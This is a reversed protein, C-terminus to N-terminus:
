SRPPSDARGSTSRERERDESLGVAYFALVTGLVAALGLLAMGGLQWGFAFCVVGALALVGLGILKPRM